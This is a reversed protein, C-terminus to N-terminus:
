KTETLTLSCETDWINSKQSNKEQDYASSLHNQSAKFAWFNPRQTGWSEQAASSSCVTDQCSGPGQMVGTCWALSLCPDRSVGVRLRRCRSWPPCHPINETSIEAARKWNKISCCVSYLGCMECSKLFELILDWSHSLSFSWLGEEWCILVSM